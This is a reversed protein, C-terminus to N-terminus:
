HISTRLQSSWSSAVRDEGHSLSSLRDSRSGIARHQGKQYRLPVRDRSSSCTGSNGVYTAVLYTQPARTASDPITADDEDSVSIGALIDELSNNIDLPGILDMAERNGWNTMQLRYEWLRVINEQKVQEGFRALKEMAINSTDDAPGLWIVVMIAQQYIDGMQQVQWSKEVNDNQNICIADIWLVTDEHERQLNRLAAYLNVTVQFQEGDLIITETIEPNGWSYSLATYSPSEDLSTTELICKIGLCGDGSASDSDSRLLTLQRIERRSKDLRCYQFAM